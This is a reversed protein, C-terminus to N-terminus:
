RLTVVFEGVAWTGAGMIECSRVKKEDALFYIGFRDENRSNSGQLFHHDKM